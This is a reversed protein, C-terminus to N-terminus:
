NARYSGLPSIKNGLLKPDIDINSKSTTPKPTQMMFSGKELTPRMNVEQPLMLGSRSAISGNHATATALPRKDEFKKGMEDPTYQVQKSKDSLISRAYGTTKDKLEQVEVVQKVQPGGPQSLVSTALKEIVSKDMDMEFNTRHTNGEVKSLISRAFSDIKNTVHDSFDADATRTAGKMQIKSNVIANAKETIYKDPNQCNEYPGNNKHIKKQGRVEINKKKDNKISRKVDVKDKTCEQGQIFKYFLPQAMYDIDFTYQKYVPTNEFAAEEPFRFADERNVLYPSKNFGANRILSGSVSTDMVTSSGPNRYGNRASNNKNYIGFSYDVSVMNNKNADYVRLTDCLRDKFEDSGYWELMQNDDGVRDRRLAYVAKPPEKLISDNNYFNEVSPLTYSENKPFQIM